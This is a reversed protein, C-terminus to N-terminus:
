NRKGARTEREQELKKKFQNFLGGINIQILHLLLQLFSMVYLDGNYTFTAVTLSQLDNRTTQHDLMGSFKMVTSPKKSEV